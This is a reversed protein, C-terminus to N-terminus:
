VGPRADGLPTANVLREAPNTAKAANSDTFMVHIAAWLSKSRWALVKAVAESMGSVAISFVFFILALGIAVDIISGNLMSEGRRRPELSVTCRGSRARSPRVSRM